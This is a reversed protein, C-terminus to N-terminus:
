KVIVVGRMASLHFNCHYPYTGRRTFKKSYVAGHDLRGSGWLGDNSTVTHPYKGRNTWRVTGGARITITRPQFYNDSLAVPSAAAPSAAAPSVAPRLQAYSGEPAPMAQEILKPARKVRDLFREAEKVTYGALVARDELARFHRRLENVTKAVEQKLQSNVRGLEAQLAALQLLAETRQRLPGGDL